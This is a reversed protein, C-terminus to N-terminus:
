LGYDSSFCIGTFGRRFVLYIEEGEAGHNLNVSLKTFGFPTVTNSGYEISVVEIAKKDSDDGVKYWLWISSGRITGKNLDTDVKIYGEPPTQEDLILM